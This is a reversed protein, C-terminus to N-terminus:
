KAQMCQDGSAISKLSSWMASYYILIHYFTTLITHARDVKSAEIVSLDVKEIEISSLLPLGRHKLSLPYSSSLVTCISRPMCARM